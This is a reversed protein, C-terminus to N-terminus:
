KINPWGAPTVDHIPDALLMEQLDDFVEMQPAVFAERPGTWGPPSGVQSGSSRTVLGARSLEALFGDVAGSITASPADYRQCAADILEDHSCGSLILQWLMSAVANMSYYSGTEMNIAITEGDLTESIAKPENLRYIGGLSM